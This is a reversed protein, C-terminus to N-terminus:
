ASQTSLPNPRAAFFFFGFFFFVVVILRNYTGDGCENRTSHEASIELPRLLEVCQTQVSRLNLLEGSKRLVDRRKMTIEKGARM